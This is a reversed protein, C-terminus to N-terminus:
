DFLQGKTVIHRLAPSAPYYNSGAKKTLRNSPRIRRINVVEQTGIRHYRAIGVRLVEVAIAVDVVIGQPVGIGGSM